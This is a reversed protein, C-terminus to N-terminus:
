KIWQGCALEAGPGGCYLNPPCCIGACGTIGKPCCIDKFTGDKFPTHQLYFGPTCESAGLRGTPKPSPTPGFGPYTCQGAATCQNGNTCCTDGCFTGKPCCLGNECTEDCCVGGCVTSGKSCCMGAHADLCVTGADCCTTGCCTSGQPCCTEGSCCLSNVPCCRDDGCCISDKGCCFPFGNSTGVCSLTEGPPCCVNSGHLCVDSGTCCDGGCCTDQSDCGQTPACVTQMCGGALPVWCGLAAATAEAQCMIAALICPVCGFVLDGLLTTACGAMQNAAANMCGECHPTSPAGNQNQIEVGAEEGAGGPLPDDAILTGGFRSLFSARSPVRESVRRRRPPKTSCTQLESKFRRGLTEIAESVGHEVHLTVPKMSAAFQAKVAKTGSTAAAAHTELGEYSGHIGSADFHLLASRLGRVSKGYEFKVTGTHSADGRTTSRRTEVRVVRTGGSTVELTDTQEAKPNKGDFSMHTHHLVRLEYSKGNSATTTHYNLHSDSGKFSYECAGSRYSQPLTLKKRVAGRKSRVAPVTQSATGAGRHAGPNRERHGPGAALVASPTWPMSATGAAIGITRLASRRPTREGALDKVFGDFWHV